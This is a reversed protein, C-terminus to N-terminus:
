RGAPAARVGEGGQNFARSDLGRHPSIVPSITSKGGGGLGFPLPGTPMDGVSSAFRDWEGGIRGLGGLRAGIALVKGTELGMRAPTRLAPSVIGAGSQEVALALVVGALQALVSARSVRAQGNPLHRVVLPERVQARGHMMDSMTSRPLDLLRAASAPKLWEVRDDGLVVKRPRGRGRKTPTATVDPNM